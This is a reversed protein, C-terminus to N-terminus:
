GTCFIILPTSKTEPEFAAGDAQIAFARVCGRGRFAARIRRDFQEPRPASSMQEDDAPFDADSHV